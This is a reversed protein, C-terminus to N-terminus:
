FLGSVIINYFIMSAEQLTILLRISTNVSVDTNLFYFKRLLGRKNRQTIVGM